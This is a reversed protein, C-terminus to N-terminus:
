RDRYAPREGELRQRCGADLVHCAEQELAVELDDRLSPARLFMARLRAIISPGRPAAPATTSPPESQPRDAESPKPATTSDSM